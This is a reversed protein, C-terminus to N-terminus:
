RFSGRQKKPWPSAAKGQQQLSKIWDQAIHHPVDYHKAVKAISGLRWYMVGFDSPMGSSAGSGEHMHKPRGPPPWVEQEPEASPQKPDTEPEPPKSQDTPPEADLETSPQPATPRSLLTAAHVLLPFDISGLEPPVATRAGVEASVETIRAGDGIVEVTATVLADDSGSERISITYLNAM